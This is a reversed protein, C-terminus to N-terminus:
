GLVYKKAYGSDACYRRIWFGAGTPDPRGDFLAAKEDMRIPEAPNVSSGGGSAADMGKVKTFAWKGCEEGSREGGIGAVHGFLDLQLDFLPLPHNPVRALIRVTPRPPLAMHDALFSELAVPDSSLEASYITQMTKDPSITAGPVHYRNLPIHAYSKPISPAQPLLLLPSSPQSHAHPRSSRSTSPLSDYSPPDHPTHDGLKISVSMSSKESM